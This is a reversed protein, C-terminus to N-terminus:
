DRCLHIAVYENSRSLKEYLQLSLSLSFSFPFPPSALFTLALSHGGKGISVKEFPSLLLPFSPLTISSGFSGIGRFVDDQFFSPLYFTTSKPGAHFHSKTPIILFVDILPGVRGARLPLLPKHLPSLSPPFPPSLSSFILRSSICLRHMNTLRHSQTWGEKGLHLPLNLSASFCRNHSYM